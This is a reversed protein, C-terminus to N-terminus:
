QTLVQLTFTGRLVSQIRQAAHFRYSEIKENEAKVAACVRDSFM